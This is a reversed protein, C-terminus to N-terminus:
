KSLSKKYQYWERSNNIVNYISQKSTKGVVYNNNRKNEDQPSSIQQAKWLKSLASKFNIKIDSTGTLVPLFKQIHSKALM